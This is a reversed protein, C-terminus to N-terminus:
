ELNLTKNRLYKHTDFPLPKTMIDAKNEKTSVWRAIVKVESVCSKIYDGHTMAMHSKSGTKERNELSNKIEEVTDDFDNLKHNGDKQTCYIASKNDCWITVPYMTKGTIDRIAKDLSVLEQCAESMALYEAQCTSLTVYTEKHSRWMIPDGFLKIIYGGISSSDSWDRFSADTIAELNEDKAKYTLGLDSTGKLYRFIRKIDKWDNETANLQRRSLYNM